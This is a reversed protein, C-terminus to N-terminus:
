EVDTRAEMTLACVPCLRRTDTAALVHPRRHSGAHGLPQLYFCNRDRVQTAPYAHLLGDGTCKRLLVDLRTAPASM